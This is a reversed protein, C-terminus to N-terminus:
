LQETSFVVLDRPPKEVLAKMRSDLTGVHLELKHGNPDLFYFSEGESKNQQWQVVGAALLRDVAVRFEGPEVTFAVHTYEPLSARRTAEDLSLCVWDGGAELYAGKYWRALPRMGLVDTYFVFSTELDCVALTIHNIGRIMVHM